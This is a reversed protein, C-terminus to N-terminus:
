KKKIVRIGKESVEIKGDLVVMKTYKINDILCDSLAINPFDFLSVKEYNDNYYLYEDIIYFCINEDCSYIYMSFAYEDQILNNAIEYLSTSYDTENNLFSIAFDYWYRGQYKESFDIKLKDLDSRLQIVFVTEDNESM